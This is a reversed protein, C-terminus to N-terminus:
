NANLVEIMPPRLEDIRDLNIGRKRVTLFSLVLLIIELLYVFGTAILWVLIEFAFLVYLVLGLWWNLNVVTFVILAFVSRILVTSLVGSPEKQNNEEDSEM